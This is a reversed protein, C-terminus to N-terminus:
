KRKERNLDQRQLAYVENILRTQEEESLGEFQCGYSQGGESEIIRLVKCGLYFPEQDELLLVDAVMLHDGVQVSSDCRLRIGGGSIDQITCNVPVGVGDASGDSHDMVMAYAETAVPQRFFERRNEIPGGALNRIKWFIRSGLTLEGTYLAVQGNKMQCRLRVVSGNPAAPLASEGAPALTLGNEEVAKIRGRFLLEGSNALIEGYAGEQIGDRDLINEPM